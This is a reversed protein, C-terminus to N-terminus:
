FLFALLYTFIYDIAALYIGILITVIIVIVSKKVTEQQTPWTVLKLEDRIQTLFAIATTGQKPTKNKAMHTPITVHSTAPSCPSTVPYRLLLTVLYCHLQPPTVKTM